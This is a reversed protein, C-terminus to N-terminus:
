HGHLGGTAMMFITICATIRTILMCKSVYLYNYVSNNKFNIVMYAELPRWHVDGLYNYVSNNKNDVYM